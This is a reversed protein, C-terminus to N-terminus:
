MVATFGKTELPTNEFQFFILTEYILLLGWDASTCNWGLRLCFLFCSDSFCDASTQEVRVLFIIHSRLIFINVSVTKHLSLYWCGSAGYSGNNDSCCHTFLLLCHSSLWISLSFLFTSAMIVPTVLPCVAGGDKNIQWLTFSHLDFCIPYIACTSVFQVNETCTVGAVHWLAILDLNM